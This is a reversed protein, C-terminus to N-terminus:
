ALQSALFRDLEAVDFHGSDVNQPGDHRHGSTKDVNQSTKASSGGSSAFSLDVRSAYLDAYYSPDRGESHWRSVLDNVQSVKIARRNACDIAVRYLEAKREASSIKENLALAEEHLNTNEHALKQLAKGADAIMANAREARQSSKYISTVKTTGNM